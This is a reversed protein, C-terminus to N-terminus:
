ADRSENLKLRKIEAVLEARIAAISADDLPHSEILQAEDISDAEEPILKQLSQLAELEGLKENIRRQIEDSPVDEDIQTLIGLELLLHRDLHDIAEVITGPYHVLAEYLGNDVLSLLSELVEIKQQKSDM